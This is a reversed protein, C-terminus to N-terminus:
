FDLLDDDLEEDGPNVKDEESFYEPASERVTFSNESNLGTDEYIDNMSLLLAGVPMSKLPIESAINFESIEWEGIDNKSHLEAFIKRQHVILYEKLSPIQKYALVKERRDIAQTSRSIIEVIVTPAVVFTSDGDFAECSIMLDPYYFSNTAKVFVKVDSVYAQCHSGRLHPRIHAFINCAIINHRRTVGSMAFIRGDVYEHKISAREEDVLYKEITIVRPQPLNM